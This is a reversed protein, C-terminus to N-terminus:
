AIRAEANLVLYLLIIYYIVYAGVHGLTFVRLSDLMSLGLMKGGYLSGVSVIAAIGDYVFKLKQGKLVFVVRSVPSVALQFLVRPVIISAMMGALLWTDGFVFAFLSSGFFYLIGSPVIGLLFLYISTRVFFPLIREASIEAYRTLHGHFADGVSAVILSLPVSLTQFMLSFQGANTEGYFQAILPIPVLTAAINLASSPVAYIPFERHRKLTKVMKRCKSLDLNLISVIRGKRWLWGIGLGRAGFDGVVLGLWGLHMVGFIVQLFARACNRLTAFSGLVNFLHDRIFMNRFVALFGTIILAPVAIYATWTPLTGYGFLEHVILQRMIFFGFFSFIITLLFSSIALENAEEDNTVSAIAVDYRLTLIVGLFRVFVTFLALRGFDTPTYLRTILPSVLLYVFQGLATGGALFGIHKLFEGKDFKLNIKNLIEILYNNYEQLRSTYFSM